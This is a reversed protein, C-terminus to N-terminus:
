KIGAFEKQKKLLESNRTFITAEGIEIAKKFGQNKGYALGRNYEDSPGELEICIWKELESKESIRKLVKYDSKNLNGSKVEELIEDDSLEKWENERIQM